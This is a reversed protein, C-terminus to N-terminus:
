SSTKLATAVGADDVVTKADGDPASPDILGSVRKKLSISEKEVVHFGGVPPSIMALITGVAELSSFVPIMIIQIYLLIFYRVPGDGIDFTKIFGTLYCLVSLSCLFYFLINLPTIEHDNQSAGPPILKVGISSGKESTWIICCLWMYVVPIYCIGWVFCTVRMYWRYKWAVGKETCCLYLGGYWRRRQMLFDLLTFPSQEYMYSDIWGFQIGKSWARLAFYSDETISGVLGWDWGVLKEVGNQVVVFSGHMGIWPSGGFTYQIRFKGFDDGVRASDALTTIYNEISTSHGYIIVGQGIDGYTSERREVKGAEKVIHWYVHHITDHNMRTEEDLHVIWDYEGATSVEVAYHLARSKYKANTSTQYDKPVVIEAYNIDADLKRGDADTVKYTDEIYSKGDIFNDTLVEVVWLRRPLCEDLVQIAALANEKVLLPHTGRTVIRVYIKNNYKSILSSLPPLNERFVSTKGRNWPCWHMAGVLGVVNVPMGILLLWKVQHFMHGLFSHTDLRIISSSGELTWLSCLAFYIPISCQFISFAIIRLFAPWENVIKEVLSSLGWADLKPGMEGNSREIAKIAHHTQGSIMTNYLYMLWRFMPREIFHYAIASLVILSPFYMLQWNNPYMYETFDRVVTQLSLMCSSLAGFYQLGGFSFLANMMIAQKSALSWVILGYVPLLLGYKIWHSALIAWSEATSADVAVSSKNTGALDFSPGSEFDITFPAVHLFVILIVTGSVAGYKSIYVYGQSMSDGSVKMFIWALTIGFIFEPFHTKFSIQYLFHWPVGIKYEISVLAGFFTLAWFWTSTWWLTTIDTTATVMRCLVPFILAQVLFIGIIWGTGCIWNMQMDVDAFWAQTGLLNFLVYEPTATRSAHKGLRGVIIQAFVSFFYVPYLKCFRKVWFFRTCLTAIKDAHGWTLIFGHLMFLYSFECVGFVSLKNFIESSNAHGVRDKRYFNFLVIHM